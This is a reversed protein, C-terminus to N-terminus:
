PKAVIKLKRFELAGAKEGAPGGSDGGFGFQAKPEAAVPHKATWNRGNFEVTITGDKLVIHVPHWDRDALIIKERVLDLNEGKKPHAIIRFVDRGMVFNLIHSRERTGDIPFSAFSAKGELRFEFRVDAETFAFRRQKVPGHRREGSEFARLVGDKATWTGLGWHWDASLPKDFTEEILLAHAAQTPHAEAAPKVTILPRVALLSEPLQARADPSEDEIIFHAVGKAKAAAIVAPIDVRGAGLRVMFPRASKPDAVDPRADRALDKLHLSCIRSGHREIVDTAKAGFWAVWFVDLQFSVVGPETAAVLVDYFTEGPTDPSDATMFDGAHNHYAFRLGAAKLAAGYRNFNAAVKLVQARDLPKKHPLIPCVVQVAGLAKADAIVQDMNKELTEPRVHHSSCTMGRAQLLARLEAAPLKTFVSTEIDTFGQAKLRDLTGPTDRDFDEQLSYMQMGMGFTLSPLGLLAAILLAQILKFTMAPSSKM